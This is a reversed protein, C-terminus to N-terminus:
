VVENQFRITNAATHIVFRIRVSFIRSSCITITIIVEYRVNLQHVDMRGNVM